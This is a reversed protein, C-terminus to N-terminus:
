ASVKSFARSWPIIFGGNNKLTFPSLSLTTDYFNKPANGFVGVSFDYLLIAALCTLIGKAILKISDALRGFDVWADGKETDGLNFPRISAQTGDEKKVFLKDDIYQTGRNLFNVPNGMQLVELAAGALQLGGEAIMALGVCNAALAPLRVAGAQLINQGTRIFNMGQSPAASM